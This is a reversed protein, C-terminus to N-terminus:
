ILISLILNLVTLVRSKTAVSKSRRKNTRNSARSGVALDGNEEENHISLRDTNRALDHM